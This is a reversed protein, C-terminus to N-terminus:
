SKPEVVWSHLFKYTSPVCYISVISLVDHNLIIVAETPSTLELKIGSASLVNLKPDAVFVQPGTYALTPDKM